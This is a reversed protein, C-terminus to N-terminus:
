GSALSIEVDVVPRLTSGVYGMAARRLALKLTVVRYMGFAVPSPHAISRGSGVASFERVRGVTAKWKELRRAPLLRDLATRVDALSSTLSVTDGTRNGDCGCFVRDHYNGEDKTPATVAIAM